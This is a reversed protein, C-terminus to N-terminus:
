EEQPKYPQPLPQWATINVIEVTGIIEDGRTYRWVGDSIYSMDIGDYTTYILVDKDEEPLRDKCLIWGGCDEPRDMNELKASLAEITDSAEILGMYIISPIYPKHSKAVARLMNVQESISM